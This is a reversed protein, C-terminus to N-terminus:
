FFSERRTDEEIRSAFGTGFLISGSGRNKAKVGTITNGSSGHLFIGTGSRSTGSWSLDLNSLTCGNAGSLQIATGQANAITLGQVTCGNAAITLVTGAGVDTADLTIGPQSTGDITLPNIIAPLASSLRITLPGGDGIGFCITDLEPNANADLIAQRLSGIGADNTNTVLLTLAAESQANVLIAPGAEGSPL